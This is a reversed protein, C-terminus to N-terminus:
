ISHVLVILIESMHPYKRLTLDTLNLWFYNLKTKLAASPGRGSLDSWDQLELHGVQSFDNLMSNANHRGTPGVVVPLPNNDLKSLFM